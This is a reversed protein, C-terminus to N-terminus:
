PSGAIGTAISFRAWVDFGFLARTAFAFGSSGARAETAGAGRRAESGGRADTTGGAKTL